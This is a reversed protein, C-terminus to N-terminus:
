VKNMTIFDKENKDKKKYKQFIGRKEYEYITHIFFEIKKFIDVNNYM